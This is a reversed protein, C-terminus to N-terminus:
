LVSSAQLSMYWDRAEPVCLLGDTRLELTGNLMSENSWLVLWSCVAM